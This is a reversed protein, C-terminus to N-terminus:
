KCIPIKWFLDCLFKLEELSLNTKTDKLIDPFTFSGQERSFMIQCIKGIRKYHQDNVHLNIYHSEIHTSKNITSIYNKSLKVDCVNVSLVKTTVLLQEGKTNIQIEYKADNEIIELNTILEQLRELGNFNETLLKVILEEKTMLSLKLKAIQSNKTYEEQLLNIITQQEDLKFNNFLEIYSNM